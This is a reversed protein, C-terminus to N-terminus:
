HNCFNGTYFGSCSRERRYKTFVTHSASLHVSCLIAKIKRELQEEVSKENQNVTKRTILVAQPSASLEGGDLPPAIGGSGWTKLAHLKIINQM